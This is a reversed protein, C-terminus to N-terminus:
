ATLATERRIAYKDGAWAQLQLLAIRNSIDEDPANRYPTGDVRGIFAGGKIEHIEIFGNDVPSFSYVEGQEAENCLCSTRMAIADAEPITASLLERTKQPFYVSVSEGTCLDTNDMHFTDLPTVIAAIKQITEKDTTWINVDAFAYSGKKVTAQKTTIGASKLAQKTKDTIKM